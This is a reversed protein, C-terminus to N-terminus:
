NVRRFRGIVYPRRDFDGDAPDHRRTGLCEFGDDFEAALSTEDYRRVPLGACSQPGDEAFVAVIMVGEPELARRAAAKYATRHDEEVLFHFVARDHWVHWTQAPEFEIIDGAMTTVTVARDALRREAAELATTSLDFLTVDTIGAEILQDALRGTGSGIDIVRGGHPTSEIVDRATPMSPEYWGFSTEDREAFLGEWHTAAAM